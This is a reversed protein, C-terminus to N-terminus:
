NRPCERYGFKDIIMNGPIAQFALAAFRAATSTSTM